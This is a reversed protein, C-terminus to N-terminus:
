QLVLLHDTYFLLLQGAHPLVKFHEEMGLQLGVGCQLLSVCLYLMLLMTTSQEVQVPHGMNDTVMKFSHCKIIYQDILIDTNWCMKNAKKSKSKNLLM